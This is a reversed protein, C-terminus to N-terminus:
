VDPGYDVLILVVKIRPPALLGGAPILTQSGLLAGDLRFDSWLATAIKVIRSILGSFTLLVLYAAAVCNFLVTLLRDVQDM